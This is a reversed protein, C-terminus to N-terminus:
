EKSMFYKKVFWFVMVTLLVPGLFIATADFITDLYSGIAPIAGFANKVLLFAMYYISFKMLDETEFVTLGVFIAVLLLILGLWTAQFSFLAALIAVLLGLLYAWKGINKMIFRRQNILTLYFQFELQYFVPIILLQPNKTM